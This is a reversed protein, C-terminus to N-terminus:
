NHLASYDYSNYFERLKQLHNQYNDQTILYDGDKMWELMISNVWGGYHISDTYNDLNCVLEFNDSFSFLRVNPCELLEQIAIEEADILWDVYGRNSLDDWYCISYPPFFLYFTTEPHELALYKVNECINDRTMKQEEETLTHKEESKEGLAYKSLVTQKGYERKDSWNKYEDFSTPKNGAKSYEVVYCAKIFIDKNLFYKYDDYFHNNYLYTPFDGDRYTDKDYILFAYDLGWIIYEPNKGANYAQQINQNIERFTGGSFPVKVFNAGWLDNAESTKFNQTMSTGTIIGNYSFNRTVGDNQYREDYIPYSYKELPAHYHFFPDIYIIYGAFLGFSLVCLLLTYIVWITSKTARRNRLEM